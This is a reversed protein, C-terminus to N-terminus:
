HSNKSAPANTMEIPKWWFNKNTDWQFRWTQGTASDLLFVWHADYHENERTVQTTQLDQLQWRPHTMCSVALVLLISPVVLHIVIRKMSNTICVM